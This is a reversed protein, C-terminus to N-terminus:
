QGGIEDAQQGLGTRSSPVGTPCCVVQSLATFALLTPQLISLVVCLRDILQSSSVYGM